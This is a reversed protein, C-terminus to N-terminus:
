GRAAGVYGGMRGFFFCVGWVVCVVKTNGYTLNVDTKEQEDRSSWVPPPLPAVLPLHRPHGGEREARQRVRVQM